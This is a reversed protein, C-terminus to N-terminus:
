RAISLSEQMAYALEADDDEWKVDLATSLGHNATILQKNVLVLETAFDVAETATVAFIGSAPTSTVRWVLTYLNELRARLEAFSVRAARREDRNLTEIDFDVEKELHALIRQATTLGEALRNALDQRASQAEAHQTTSQLLKTHHHWGYVTTEDNSAVLDVLAVIAVSM